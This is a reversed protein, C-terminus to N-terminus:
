VVVANAVFRQRIKAVNLPLFNRGSISSFQVALGKVFYTIYHLIEFNLASPVDRMCGHDPPSRNDKTEVASAWTSSLALSGRRICWM